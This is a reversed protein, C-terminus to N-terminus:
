RINNAGKTDSPHVVVVGALGALEEQNLGLGEPIEFREQHLLDLVYAPAVTRLGRLVESFYQAGFHDRDDPLSEFVLADSVRDGLPFQVQDAVALSAQGIRHDLVHALFNKAVQRPGFQPNNIFAKLDDSLTLKPLAIPSKVMAGPNALDEIPTARYYAMYADRWTYNRAVHAALFSVTKRQCAECNEVDIPEPDTSHPNAWDEVDLRYNPPGFYLVYTAAVQLKEATAFLRRRQLGSKYAFDIDWTGSKKKKLRKAQVLMGFATGDNGIWWWLWDAGTGETGGEQNRNFPFAEVKPHAGVLVLETITEEGWTFGAAESATMHGQASTRARTFAELLASNTSTM